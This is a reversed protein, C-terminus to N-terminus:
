RSSFLQSFSNLRSRDTRDLVLSRKVSTIYSPRWKPQIHEEDFDIHIHEYTLRFKARSSLGGVRREEQPTLWCNTAGTPSQNVTVVPDKYSSCLLPVNIASKEEQFFM